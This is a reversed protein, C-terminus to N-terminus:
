KGLLKNMLTQINKIPTLGYSVGLIDLSRDLMDMAEKLEVTDYLDWLADLAKAYSEYTTPSMRDEQHPGVSKCYQDLALGLAEAMAEKGLIRNDMLIYFPGGIESGSHISLRFRKIFDQYKKGEVYLRVLDM